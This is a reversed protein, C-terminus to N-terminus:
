PMPAVTVSTTGDVVGAYSQRRVAHEEFIAAFADIFGRAESDSPSWRLVADTGEVSFVLAEAFTQADEPRLGLARFASAMFSLLSDKTVSTMAIATM